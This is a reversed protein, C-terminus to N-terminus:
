GEFNDEKTNMYTSFIGYDIADEGELKISPNKDRRNMEVLKVKCLDRFNIRYNKTRGTSRRDKADAVVM